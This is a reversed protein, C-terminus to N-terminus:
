PPTLSILLGRPEQLGLPGPFENLKKPTDAAAVLTVAQSGVEAAEVLIVEQSDVQPAV